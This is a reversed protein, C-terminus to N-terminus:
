LRLTGVQGGATCVDVTRGRNLVSIENPPIFQTCRGFRDCEGEEGGVVCTTGVNGFLASGRGSAFDGFGSDVDEQGAPATSLTILL